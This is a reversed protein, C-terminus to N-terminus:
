YLYADRKQDSQDLRNSGQQMLNTIRMWKVSHRVSSTKLLKDQRVARKREANRLEDPNVNHRVGYKKSRQTVAFLLLM